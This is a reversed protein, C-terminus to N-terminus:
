LELVQIKGVNTTPSSGFDGVMEPPNGSVGPLESVWVRQLGVRRESGANRRAM